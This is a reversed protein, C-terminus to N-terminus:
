QRRSHCGHFPCGARLAHHFRRDTFRIAFLNPIIPSALLSAVLRLNNMIYSPLIISKNDSRELRGESWGGDKEGRVIEGAIIFEDMITLYAVKPMIDNIMYKFAVSTLIVTLILSCRDGYDDKSPEFGYSMLSLLEIMILPFTISMHIPFTDRVCVIGISYKAKDKNGKKFKKIEGEEIEKHVGGKEIRKFELADV